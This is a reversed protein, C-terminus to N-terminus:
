FYDNIKNFMVYFCRHSRVATERWIAIVEHGCDRLMAVHFAAARTGESFYLPVTILTTKM